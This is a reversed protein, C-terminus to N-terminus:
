RMFCCQVAGAPLAASAEVARGRLFGRLMKLMSTAPERVALRAKAMGALARALALPAVEMASAQLAAASSATASLLMWAPADAEVDVESPTVRSAESLSSKRSRPTTVGTFSCFGQPVQQLKEMM